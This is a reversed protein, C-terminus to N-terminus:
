YGRTFFSDTDIEKRVAKVKGVIMPVLFLALIVIVIIVINDEVWEKRYQKYAKSYNEDDYKLEFYDMAEHYKKQRLLSRGIGIYALDYNGNQEMVKEWTEGSATYKGQDFEDIAEYVLGGYETPMMLTVACDLPDLILLDYGSHEISIPARFYGDMNGIGGFAFVMNGQDDYGFVRGRNRDLCVYIDNDLVTIDTLYSHGDYGGGAGMYLDGIINWNGNRVLIDNGMLNLKRIADADGSKLDKDEPAGTCVYIFGEKDMFLNDYETPVFSEMLARQAQTAFKKWIYDTWDFTVPTAGIFGSFTGDAEYKVLGKNIGKATCYVRGATDISLKSPQFALEPDLTNDVPKVFEFQYNLDKDLKLIRANGQDAIFFDGEESRAIDTPNSFTTPGDGGTFSDIIRNVEISTKDTRICEIIRNNGSDCIYILDQYCYLSQPSKMKVDLGLESSTFVKSCTYLDPSDQVDGWYDYIYTYSHDDAKATMPVLAVVLFSMILASIRIIRAKM